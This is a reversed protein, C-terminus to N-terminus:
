QHGALIGTADDNGHEDADGTGEEAREDAAGDAM